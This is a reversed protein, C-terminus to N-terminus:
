RPVNGILAMAEKKEKKKQLLHCIEFQLFM